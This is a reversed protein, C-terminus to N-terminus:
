CYAESVQGKVAAVSGSECAAMDAWSRDCTADVCAAVAVVFTEDDLFAVSETGVFEVTSGEVRVALFEYRVPSVGADVGAAVSQFEDACVASPTEFLRDHFPLFVIDIMPSMYM